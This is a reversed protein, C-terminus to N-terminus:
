SIPFISFISFIIFGFFVLILFIILVWHMHRTEDEWDAFSQYGADENEDYFFDWKM